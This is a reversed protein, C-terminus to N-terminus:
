QLRNWVESGYLSGLIVRWYAGDAYPDGYKRRLRVATVQEPGLDVLHDGSSGLDLVRTRRGQDKRDQILRAIGGPLVEQFTQDYPIWALSGPGDMMWHSDLGEARLAAYTLISNVLRQVEGSTNHAFLRAPSVGYGQLDGIELNSVRRPSEDFAG